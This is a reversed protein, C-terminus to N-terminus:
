QDKKKNTVNYKALLVNTLTSQHITNRSICYLATQLLFAFIIEIYVTTDLYAAQAGEVTPAMYLHQFLDTHAM